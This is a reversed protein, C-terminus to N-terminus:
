ENYEQMSDHSKFEDLPSSLLYLPFMFCVLLPCEILM